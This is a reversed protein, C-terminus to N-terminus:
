PFIFFHLIYIVKLISFPVKSLAILWLERKAGEVPSYEVLCWGTQCLGLTTSVILHQCAALARSSWGRLVLSLGRPGTDFHCGRHWGRTVPLPLSNARGGSADFNQAGHNLPRDM